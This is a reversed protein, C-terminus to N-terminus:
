ARRRRPAQKKTRSDKRRGDTAKTDHRVFRWFDKRLGRVLETMPLAVTAQGPRLVDVVTSRPQVLQLRLVRPEVLLICPPTPEEALLGRLISDREPNWATAVDALSGLVEVLAAAVAVEVVDAERFRGKPPTEFIGAIGWNQWTSRKVGTVRLMTREYIFGISDPTSSM